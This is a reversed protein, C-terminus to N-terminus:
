LNVYLVNINIKPIGLTESHMVLSKLASMLLYSLKRM